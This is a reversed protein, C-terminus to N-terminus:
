SNFVDMGAPIVFKFQDAKIAPNKELNQLLIVTTQNFNDRLDMERPVGDQMGISIVSFSSEKDRPTAQLWDMGDKQGVDKLTFNKELDNSGFLIAAPSSSIATGLKKVTVQNLDKDVMYLKDGDAQLLLYPATYTWIFKGPRAFMFTGSSQKSLKVEGTKSNQKIQRQIFDGKAAHTSSVFAKFQEIGGAQAANIATSLAIFLAATKITQSATKFSFKM